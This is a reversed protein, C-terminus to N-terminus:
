PSVCKKKFFSIFLYIVDRQAEQMPDRIRGCRFYKTQNGLVIGRERKRGGYASARGHTVLDIPCAHVRTVLM